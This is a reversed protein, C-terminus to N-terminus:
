RSKYKEEQFHYKCFGQLYPKDGCSHRRCVERNDHAVKPMPSYKQIEAFQKQPMTKPEKIYM